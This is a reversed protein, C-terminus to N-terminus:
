LDIGNSETRSGVQNAVALITREISTYCNYTTIVATVSRVSNAAPAPISDAALLDGETM